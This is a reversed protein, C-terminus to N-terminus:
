LFVPLKNANVPAFVNLFLCDEDGPGSGFGYALPTQSSAGTQPCIPPDTTAPITTTRNKAPAQPARWRLDGLPPAAYRIRRPSDIYVQKHYVESSKGRLSM